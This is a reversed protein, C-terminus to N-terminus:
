SLLPLVLRRRRRHARYLVSHGMRMVWSAASPTVGALDLAVDYILPVIGWLESPSALVDGSRCHKQATNRLGDVELLLRDVPVEPRQYFGGGNFLCFAGCRSESERGREGGPSHPRVLRITWGSM